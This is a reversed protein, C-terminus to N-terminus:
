KEGSGSSDKSGASDKSSALDQKPALDVLASDVTPGLESTGREGAGLDSTPHAADSASADLFPSPKLLDPKTPHDSKAARDPGSVGGEKGGGTGGDLHDNFGDPSGTPSPIPIPTAVCSAIALIVLVLALISRM